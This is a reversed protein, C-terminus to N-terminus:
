ASLEEGWADEGRFVEVMFYLVALHIALEGNIEELFDHREQATLVPGDAHLPVSGDPAEPLGSLWDHRGGVGKLAGFVAELGGVERLLRANQMVLHLHHERSTSHAFTGQAVYLIRRASDFRVEPDKDELRDLVHLLYSKKLRVDAETWATSRSIKGKEACWDPWTKCGVPPPGMGNPEQQQDVPPAERSETWADRGELVGGVEVYSYFEDLENILTDSDVSASASPFPRAATGIPDDPAPDLHPPHPHLTPFDYVTQKEKQAAKVALRLQGLTVGEGDGPMPAGNPAAENPGAPGARGTGGATGSVENAGPQNNLSIARGPPGGGGSVTTKGAAARRAQLSMAPVPIKQNSSVLPPARLPTGADSEATFPSSSDSVADLLASQLKACDEDVVGVAVAPPTDAMNAAAAQHAGYAKGKGFIAQVPDIWRHSSTPWPVEARLM